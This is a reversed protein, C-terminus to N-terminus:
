WYFLIYVKSLHPIMLSIPHMRKKLNDRFVWSVWVQKLWKPRESIRVGSKGCALRFRWSHCQRPKFNNCSKLTITVFLIIKDSCVFIKVFIFKRFFSLCSVFVCFCWSSFFIVCRLIWFYLLQRHVRQICRKILIFWNCTYSKFSYYFAHRRSVFADVIYQCLSIKIISNYM